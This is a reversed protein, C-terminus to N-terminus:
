ISGNPINATVQIKKKYKLLVWEPKISTDCVFREFICRTTFFCVNYRCCQKLVFATTYHMSIDNQLHAM